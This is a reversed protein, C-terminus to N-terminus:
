LFIDSICIPSNFINSDSSESKALEKPIEKGCFVNLYSLQNVLKILRLNSNIALKKIARAGRFNARVYMMNYITKITNSNNKNLRDFGLEKFEFMQKQNSGDVYSM